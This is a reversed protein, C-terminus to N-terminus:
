RVVAGKLLGREGFGEGNEDVRALAGFERGALGHEYKADASDAEECTREGHAAAGGMDDGNVDVTGSEVEGHRVPERVLNVTERGNVASLRSLLLKAAGLLSDLMGQELKALWIPKVDHEFAAARLGADLHRTM